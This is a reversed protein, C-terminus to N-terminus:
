LDILRGNEIKKWCEANYKKKTKEMQESLRMSPKCLPLLEITKRFAEDSAWFKIYDEQVGLEKAAALEFPFIEQHNLDKRHLHEHLGFVPRIKEPVDEGIINEYKNLVMIKKNKEKCLQYELFYYAYPSEMQSIPVVKYTFDEGLLNCRYERKEEGILNGKADYLM